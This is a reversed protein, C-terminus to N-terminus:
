RYTNRHGVRISAQRSTPINRVAGSPVRGALDDRQILRLPPGGTGGPPSELFPEALSHYVSGLFGYVNGSDAFLAYDLTSLSVMETFSESSRSWVVYVLKTTLSLLFGKGANTFPPDVSTVVSLDSGALLYPKPDDGTESGFVLVNGAGGGGVVSYIPSLLWGVGSEGISSGDASTYGVVQQGLGNSLYVKTDDRSYVGQITGLSLGDVPGVQTFSDAGIDFIDIENLESNDGPGLTCFRGSVDPIIRGVSLDESTDMTTMTGAIPDIVILQVYGWDLPGAPWAEYPPPPDPPDPKEKAKTVYIKSCDESAVADIIGGLTYVSYSDFTFAATMVAATTVFEEPHSLFGLTAPYTDSEVTQFPIGWQGDTTLPNDWPFASDTGWVLVALDGESAAPIEAHADYPTSGNQIVTETTATGVFEVTGFMESARFYAFNVSSGGDSQTWSVVLAPVGEGFPPSISQVDNIYFVYVYCLGSSEAFKVMQWDADHDTGTIVPDSTISVTDQITIALTCILANGSFFPVITPSRGVQLEFSVTGDDGTFLTATGGVVAIESPVKKNWDSELDGLDWSNLLTGAGVDNNRINYECVTQTPTTELLYLRSLDGNAAFPPGLPDTITVGPGKILGKVTDYFSLVLGDDSNVLLLTGGDDSQFWQTNDPIVREDGLPACRSAAFAPFEGEGTGELGGVGGPPPLRVLVQNAKWPQTM